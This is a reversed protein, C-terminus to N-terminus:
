REPHPFQCLCQLDQNTGPVHSTGPRLWWPSAEQTGRLPSFCCGSGLVPADQLFPLTLPDRPYCRGGRAALPAATTTHLASCLSSSSAASLTLPMKAKSIHLDCLAGPADGRKFEAIGELFPKGRPSVPSMHGGVHSKSFLERAVPDLAIWGSAIALGLTMRQHIRWCLTVWIRQAEAAAM